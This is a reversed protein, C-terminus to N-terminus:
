VVRTNRAVYWVSCMRVNGEIPHDYVEGLKAMNTPTKDGIDICNRRTGGSWWVRGGGSSTDDLQTGGEAPTPVRGNARHHSEVRRRTNDPRRVLRNLFRHTIYRILSMRCTSEGNADRAYVTENKAPIEKIYKCNPIWECRLQEIVEHGVKTYSKSQGLFQFGDDLDEKAAIRHKM